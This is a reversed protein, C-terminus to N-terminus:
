GAHFQGATIVRDYARKADALMEWARNKDKDGIWTSFTGYVWSGAVLSSLRPSADRHESLYDSFTTMRLRPHAALREYLTALFYSGNSPYYEWANEGDMIISVLASPNGRCSDAINELHGILDGVADDAHGTVM